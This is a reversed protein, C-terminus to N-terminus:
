KDGLLPSSPIENDRIATNAYYLPASRFPSVLEIATERRRHFVVNDSFRVHPCVCNPIMGFVVFRTKATYFILLYACGRLPVGSIGSLGRPWVWQWTCPAQSTSPQNSDSFSRSAVAFPSISGIAFAATYVDTENADDDFRQFKKKKEKKKKKKKPLKLHWTSLPTQSIRFM